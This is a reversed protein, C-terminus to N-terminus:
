QKAGRYLDTIPELAPDALTIKGDRGMEFSVVNVTEGVRDLVADKAFITRVEPNLGVIEIHVKIDKGSKALERDSYLNVGVDWHGPEFCRVSTVEKNSISRVTSGDGLTILSTQFGLSDRDLDACGVQRSGYFIPQRSPNVVWLDVDLDLMVEWDASILYEAKPKVGDTKSRTPSVAVIVVSVICLLLDALGIWISSRDRM